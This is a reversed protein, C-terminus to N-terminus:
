QAQIILPDGLTQGLNALDIHRLVADSHKFFLVKKGPKRKALLMLQLGATDIETVEGLDVNVEDLVTLTELLRQHIDQVSFITLEGSLAFLKQQTDIKIEWSM